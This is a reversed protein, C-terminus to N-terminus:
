EMGKKLREELPVSAWWHKQAEQDCLAIELHLVHQVSDRGMMESKAATGKWSLIFVALFHTETLYVVWARGKHGGLWSSVWWLDVQDPWVDASKGRSRAMKQDRDSHWTVRSVFLTSPFALHLEWQQASAYHVGPSFCCWLPTDGVSPSFHKKWPDHLCPLSAVNMQTTSGWFLFLFSWRGMCMEVVSSQDNCM